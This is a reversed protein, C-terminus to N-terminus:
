LIASFQSRVRITPVPPHPAAISSRATRPAIGTVISERHNACNSTAAANARTPAKLHHIFSPRVFNAVPNASVAPAATLPPACLFKAGNASANWHLGPVAIIRVSLSLHTTQYPYFSDLTTLIPNTSPVFIAWMEFALHPAGNRLWPHAEGPHPKGYLTSHVLPPANARSQERARRVPHSLTRTVPRAQM